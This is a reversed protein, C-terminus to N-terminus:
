DTKYLSWVQDVKKRAKPKYKGFVETSMQDIWVGNQIARINQEWGEEEEVSLKVGKKMWPLEGGGIGGIGGEEGRVGMAENRGESGSEGGREEESDEGTDIMTGFRERINSGGNSGNGEEVIMTGFRERHEITTGLRENSAENEPTNGVFLMTGYIENDDSHNLFPPPCGPSFNHRSNSHAAETPSSLSSEEHSRHRSNRYVESPSLGTNSNTDLELGGKNRNLKLDGSSSNHNMNVVPTSSKRKPVNKSPTSPTSPNLITNPPNSTTPPSIQNLILTELEDANMGGRLSVHVKRKTALPTSIRHEVENNSVEGSRPSATKDKFIVLPSSPPPRGQNNNM